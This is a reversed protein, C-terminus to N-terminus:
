GSAPMRSKQRDRPSPSTYLLCPVYLELDTQKEKPTQYGNYLEACLVKQDANNYNTRVQVSHPLSQGICKYYADKKNASLYFNRNMCMSDHNYEDLPNGNVSFKAKKIVREGPFPAWKVLPKDKNAGASYTVTPAEINMYLYMDALFDGFQPLSYSITTGLKLDGKSRVKNFESSIAVHPRFHARTFLIHTKEIDALTPLKGSNKITRLRANLLETAM